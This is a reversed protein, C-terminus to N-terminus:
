ATVRSTGFTVDVRSRARTTGQTVWGGDAVASGSAHPKSPGIWQVIAQHDTAGPGRVALYDGPTAGFMEIALLLTGDDLTRDWGTFSLDTCRIPRSFLYVFTAGRVDPSEIQWV